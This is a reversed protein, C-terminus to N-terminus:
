NLLAQNENWLLHKVQSLAQTVKTIAEATQGIRIPDIYPTNAYTGLRESIAVLSRELSLASAELATSTTSTLPTAQFVETRTTM